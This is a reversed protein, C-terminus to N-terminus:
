EWELGTGAGVEEIHMRNGMAVKVALSTCHCPYLHPIDERQLYAICRESREDLQRLHFGGIVGMVRSQGTVRKAQEIINGIGSHSCGTIVYVGDRGRYALATDDPTRDPGDEGQRVTQDQDQPDLRPIAGLYFLNETLALPEASLRLDFYRELRARPYPCGISLGRSVVRRFLAPHAVLQPRPGETFFASLGKTHDDHCHSLVVGDVDRWDLGLAEANQAFVGFYGTDLLFRRGEAEVLCSFGPEGLLYQDILTNNDSLVTLKMGATYWALARHAM